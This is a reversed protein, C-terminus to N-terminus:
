KVLQVLDFSMEILPFLNRFPLADSDVLMLAMFITFNQPIESLIRRVLKLVYNYNSNIFSVHKQDFVDLLKCFGVHVHIYAGIALRAESFGTMKLSM